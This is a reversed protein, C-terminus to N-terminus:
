LLSDLSSVTTGKAKAQAEALRAAARESKIAALAAAVNADSNLKERFAPGKEEDALSKRVVEAQEESMNPFVRKMADLYDSSRTGVKSDASWNGGKIVELRATANDVMDAVSLNKAGVTNTVSTMVGYLAAARLVEPSLEDAACELAEVIEKGDLFSIRVKVSDLRARSSAEGAANYFQRLTKEARSRTTGDINTDIAM